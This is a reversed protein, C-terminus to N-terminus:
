LRDMSFAHVCASGDITGSMHGAIVRGSMIGSGIQSRFTGDSAITAPYLPTPNGPANPHPMAYTFANGSVQVMMAPDTECWQRQMGSGLGTVQVTGRYTCDWSVVPAAAVAGGSQTRPGSACGALAVVAIIVIYVCSTKM